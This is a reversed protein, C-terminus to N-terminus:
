PCLHQLMLLLPHPPHINEYAFSLYITYNFTYIIDLARSAPLPTPNHGRCLM